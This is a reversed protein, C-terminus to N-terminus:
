EEAELLGKQVELLKMLKFDAPPFSEELQGLVWRYRRVAEMLEEATTDEMLEPFNAFLEAWETWALEYKEKMTKLDATASAQDAEYIYKRARIATPTKEAQCRMKWYDYNVQMRYNFIADAVEEAHTGLKVLRNAQRRKESPARAAIEAYRARSKSQARSALEAQEDTRQEVPTDLARREEDLLADRKEQEIQARAGPLLDDLEKGLRAAEELQRERDNLRIPFGFSTPIERRGYLEWEKGGREWAYSAKEDLYGDEEIASAYNILWKPPHSHFILPTKGRRIRDTDDVLRGRIPVGSDVIKQGVLFWERGTLWNDPRNDPGQTNDMDISASLDTHFDSDERYLRRYQLYEDAKGIKHGFTWGLEWPLVPERSNYRIGERLFNIGRKIWLYRSRYDDFEVSVNYALNWGQYQWVSIFNPQLKTIQNVTASLNDWDHERKYTNAREWLLNAAVGRMGLTALKMSESAPDIEGLDAPSLEYQTRLRALVGGETLGGQERVAPRSILYLPYLLASIAIGYVIKRVFSANQMM